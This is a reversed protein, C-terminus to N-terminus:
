DEFYGINNNNKLDWDYLLTLNQVFNFLEEQDDNSVRADNFSKALSKTSERLSFCYFPNIEQRFRLLFPWEIHRLEKSKSQLDVPTKLLETMISKAFYDNGSLALM